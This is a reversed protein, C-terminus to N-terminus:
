QSVGRVAQVVVANNEWSVTVKIRYFTGATADGESFIEWTRTFLGGSVVNGHEDLGTETASGAATPTLQTRLEEVKDEALVAAETKRRSMSSARSEVTYLGIIGIVAIASLLIAIMVEILTFGSETPRQTM